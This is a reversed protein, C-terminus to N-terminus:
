EKPLEPMPVTPRTPSEIGELSGVYFGENDKGKAAFRHVSIWLSSEPYDLQALWRAWQPAATAAAHDNPAEIVIRGVDGFSHTVHIIYKQM